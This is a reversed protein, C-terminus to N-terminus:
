VEEGSRELSLPGEELWADVNWPAFLHESRKYGPSKEYPVASLSPLEDAMENDVEGGSDIPKAAKKLSTSCSTV